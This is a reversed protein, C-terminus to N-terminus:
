GNKQKKVFNIFDIIQDEERSTLNKDARLAVRIDVKQEDQGLFFKIDKHFIGAVKELFEVSIGREGSEILSIATATEFGLAEALSKQSLGAEDRAQRIKKGIFTNKDESKM